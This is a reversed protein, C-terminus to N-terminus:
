ELEGYLRIAEDIAVIFDSSNREMAYTFLYCLFDELTTYDAQDVIQEALEEWPLTNTIQADM